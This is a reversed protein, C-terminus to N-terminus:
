KREPKAALEARAARARRQFCPRKGCKLAAGETRHRCLEDGSAGDLVVFAGSRTVRKEDRKVVIM